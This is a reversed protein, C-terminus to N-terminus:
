GLAAFGTDSLRNEAVVIPAKWVPSRRFIRAQHLKGGQFISVGHIRLDVPHLYGLIFGSASAERSLCGTWLFAVRDSSRTL